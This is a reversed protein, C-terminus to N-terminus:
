HRSDAAARALAAVAPSTSHAPWALALTSAPVDTVPVSALDDRLPTTLSRPLVAVTQGLAIRHMLEDISGVGDDRRHLPEGDLDAMRLSPRGALRHSAPLVALAPETLLPQVDLGRLDDGPDYLLAADARGDRLLRARDADFVVHVPVAQPDREYAALVAPLMGADGGPKMALVLGPDGGAARRARQVAASVADLAYRAETALVRGAPTLAVARSSREFLGVGLRRELRQVAKSLAPQAIGLRGAARGFHLEDAVALFYALERTEVRDM